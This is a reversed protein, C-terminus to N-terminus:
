PFSTCTYSTVGGSVYGSSATVIIKVGNTSQVIGLGEYSGGLGVFPTGSTVISLQKGPALTNPKRLMQAGTTPNFLNLVLNAISTGVNVIKLTTYQSSSSVRRVDGCVWVASAQAVPVAHYAYFKAGSSGVQLSSVMLPSNGTETVKAYGSFPAGLQKLSPTSYVHLGKAPIQQTDSAKLIGQNTYYKVTVTAPNSDRNHVYVESWNTVTGIANVTREIFNVELAAAAESDVLGRLSAADATYMIQESGVIPQSSEVRVTGIFPTTGFASMSDFVSSALPLVSRATPSGGVENGSGDYYHVKVNATAAPDTNQISVITQQAANGLHRYIPFTLWTSATTGAADSTRATNASTADVVFAEIRSNATVVATGLFSFPLNPPLAVTIVGHAAISKSPSYVEKGASDYVHLVASASTSGPNYAIITSTMPGPAKANVAAQPEVEVPSEPNADTGGDPIPPPSFQPPLAGRTTGAKGVAFQGPGRQPKKAIAGCNAPYLSFDDFRADIAGTSPSSAYLGIRRIDMYSGDNVTTLLQDNAYVSISSGSRNVKLRNPKSSTAVYKSVTWNKLPTWKSNGYRWVSYQTDYVFFAYFETWDPNIAFILGYSGTRGSTRHATVSAIYDTAKAGPSAATWLGAKKMKIQYQGNVYAFTSYSDNSVPWGSKPDQFGDSYYAPCNPVQANKVLYPLYSVSPSPPSVSPHCESPYVYDVAVYGLTYASTSNVASYWFKFQAGDVIVAANAARNSDFSGAAGKSIAKGQRTWTVLDSSTALGIEPASPLSSGSYWMFYRGGFALVRPAYVQLWDWKGPAGIDFVPNVPDVAWIIGDASTAHGIRNTANDFGSYWMHFAGDAKLVSPSNVNAADWAGTPALVWKGNKIWVVGDASYAYGIRTTGSSDRGDYWMKYTGGDKIVSPASLAKGEWGQDPSLVVGQKNWTLGDPSTAYAIREVNDSGIATYWLKYTGGEKLVAPLLAGGSDYPASGTLVPANGGRSMNCLSGAVVALASETISDGGGEVIASNQISHGPQSPANVITKFKITVGGDAPVVGDWNIGGDNYSPSGGTAMLTDAVFALEPPLTDTVHTNPVDGPGKAQLRLTWSRTDGVLTDPSDVTLSSFGLPRLGYAGIDCNGVRPLGRQDTELPNGTLDTCGAPDGGGIAPSGPLLPLYSPVGQLPGLKPDLGTIDNSVLNCQSNKGILNHGLSAIIGWLQAGACDAGIHGAIITHKISIKESGGGNESHIGIQGNAFITSNVIIVHGYSNALGDGSYAIGETLNHAITTNTVLMSGWDNLIGWGNRGISTLQNSTVSSNSLTLTGGRNDIGAGSWSATNDHIQSFTVTLIGYNYIGAGWESLGDRIDLHDLFATVGPAVNIVRRANQGDLTSLGSQTTFALDWGGSLAANKTLHVVGDGTGTFTGVAVKVADGPTFGAQNLTGDISACPTTPNACDNADSGTTAVYWTGSAHIPTPAAASLILLLALGLLALISIAKPHIHM